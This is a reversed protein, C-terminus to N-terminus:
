HYGIVQQSFVRINGIAAVLQFLYKTGPPDEAPNVFLRGSFHGMIRSLSGDSLNILAGTSDSLGLIATYQGLGYLPSVSGAPLQHNAPVTDWVYELIEPPYLPVSPIAALMLTDIPGTVDLDFVFDPGDGPQLEGDLEGVLDIRGSDQSISFADISPHAWSPDLPPSWFIAGGSLAALRVYTRPEFVATRSNAFLRLLHLGAPIVAISGDPLNNLSMGDVSVGLIPTDRGALYPVHLDQVFPEGGVLTDWVTEPDGFAGAQEAGSVLVLADIPGMVAAGFVLDPGDGPQAGRDTGAVQDVHWSSQTDEWLSIVSPLADPQELVVDGGADRADGGDSADSADIGRESVDPSNLGPSEDFGDARDTRGDTSNCVGAAGM